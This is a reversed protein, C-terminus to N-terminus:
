ITTEKEFKYDIPFARNFRGILYYETGSEDDDEAMEERQVVEFGLEEVMIREVEDYVDDLDDENRSIVSVQYSLRTWQEKNDSHLHPVNGLQSYVISLEGDYNHYRKDININELIPSSSLADYILSQVEKNLM